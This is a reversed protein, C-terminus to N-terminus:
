GPVILLTTLMGRSKLIIVEQSSGVKFGLTENRFCDVPDFTRSTSLRRGLLDEFTIRLTEERTCNTEFVNTINIVNSPNSIAVGRQNTQVNVRKICTIDSLLKKMDISVVDEMLDCGTFFTSQEADSLNKASSRNLMRPYLM